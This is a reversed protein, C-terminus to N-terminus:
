PSEYDHAANTGDLEWYVFTGQFPIPLTFYSKSSYDFFVDNSILTLSSIRNNVCADYIGPLGKGRYSKGTSSRHMEGSFIGKLIDAHSVGRGLFSDVWARVRSGVPKNAINSFIGVGYDVFAFSVVKKNQDHRVSLWWHKKKHQPLNAISAHNNTNHMLEILTRQVGKCLRKRGWVTKSADAIIREGLEADVKRMAHTMIPALTTHRPLEYSDRDRWANNLHWFFGSEVLIINCGLDSPNDGYFRIKKGQFSIMVSLLVTLADYDIETVNRLKVFVPRRCDYCAQLQSIFACFREANRKFSLLEPASIRKPPRPAHRLWNRNYLEAETIGQM